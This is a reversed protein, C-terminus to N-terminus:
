RAADAQFRSTEPREVTALISKKSNPMSSTTTPLAAETVPRNRKGAQAV